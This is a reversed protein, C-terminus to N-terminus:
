HVLEAVPEPLKIGEEAAAAAAAAALEKTLQKLTAVETPAATAATEQAIQTLEQPEIIAM